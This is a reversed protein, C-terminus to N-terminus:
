RYMTEYRYSTWDMYYVVTYSISEMHIKLANRREICERVWWFFQKPVYYM